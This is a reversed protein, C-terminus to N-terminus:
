LPDSTRKADKGLDSLQATAKRLFICLVLFYLLLAALSIM